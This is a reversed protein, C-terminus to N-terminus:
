AQLLINKVWVGPPTPNMRLARGIYRLPRAFDLPLPAPAQLSGRRPLVGGAVGATFLVQCAPPVAYSARAQKLRGRSEEARAAEYAGSPKHAIPSTQLEPEGWVVGDGGARASAEEGRM